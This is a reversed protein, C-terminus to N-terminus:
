LTPPPVAAPLRPTNPSRCVYDSPLVSRLREIEARAAAEEPYAPNNRALLAQLHTELGTIQRCRAATTPQEPWVEVVKPVDPACGGILALSVVVLNARM